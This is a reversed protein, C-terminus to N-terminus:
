RAETWWAVDLYLGDFPRPRLTRVRGTRVDLVQISSPLKEGRGADLAIYRGDPSWGLWAFRNGLVVRAYGDPLPAVRRRRGDDAVLFIGAPEAYAYSSGSPAWGAYILEGRAVTQASGRRLDLLLLREM